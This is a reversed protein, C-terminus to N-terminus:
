RVISRAKEQISEVHKPLSILENLQSRLAINEDTLAAIKAPINPFEDQCTDCLWMSGKMSQLTTYAKVSVDACSIHVWGSCFDCQLAKSDKNVIDQCKMCSADDSSTHLNNM